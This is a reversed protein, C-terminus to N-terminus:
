YYFKNLFLNWFDNLYHVIKYIFFISDSKYMDWTVKNWKVQNHENICHSQFIGIIFTMSIYYFIEHYINLCLHEQLFGFLLSFFLVLTQSRVFVLLTIQQFDNAIASKIQQSYCCFCDEWFHEGICIKLLIYYMVYCFELLIFIIHM